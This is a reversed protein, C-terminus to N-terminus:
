AVNTIAKCKVAQVKGKVNVHPKRREAFLGPYFEHRRFLSQRMALLCAKAISKVLGCSAKIKVTLVAKEIRRRFTRKREDRKDM